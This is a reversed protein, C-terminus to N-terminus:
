AASAFGRVHLVAVSALMRAKAIHSSHTRVFLFGIAYAGHPIYSSGVVSESPELIRYSIFCCVVIYKM